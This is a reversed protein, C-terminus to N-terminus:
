INTKLKQVLKTKLKLAINIKALNKIYEKNKAVM